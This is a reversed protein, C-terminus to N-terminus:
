ASGAIFGEGERSRSDKGEPQYGRFDACWGVLINLKHVVACSHERKNRSGRRINWVPLTQVHLVYMYICLSHWSQSIGPWLGSNLRALMTSLIHLTYYCVFKQLLWWPDTNFVVFRPLERPSPCCRRLWVAQRWHGRDQAWCTGATVLVLIILVPKRHSSNYYLMACYTQLFQWIRRFTKFKYTRNFSLSVKLNERLCIPVRCANFANNWM